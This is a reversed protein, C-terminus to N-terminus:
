RTLSRWSWAEQMLQNNIKTRQEPTLQAWVQDRLTKVVVRDGDKTEAKTEALYSIGVRGENLSRVIRYQGNKLSQGPAFM